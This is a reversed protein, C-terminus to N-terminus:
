ARMKISSSLAIVFDHIIELNTILLEIADLDGIGKDVLGKLTRQLQGLNNLAKRRFRVKVKNIRDDAILFYDRTLANIVFDTRSMLEYGTRDFRYFDIKQICSSSLRVSKKITEVVEEDSDIRKHKRPLTLIEAKTDAILETALGIKQLLANTKRTAQRLLVKDDKRRAFFNSEKAITNLEDSLEILLSTKDREAENDAVIVKCSLISNEIVNKLTIVIGSKRIEEIQLDIIDLIDIPLRFSYVKDESNIKENIEVNYLSHQLLENENLNTFANM